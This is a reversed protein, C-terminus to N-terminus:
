ETEDLGFAERLRSRIRQIRLRVAGPKLAKGGHDRLWDCIQQTTYDEFFKLYGIVQDTADPGSLILDAIRTMMENAVAEDVPGPAKTAPEPLADGRVERDPSSALKRERRAVDILKRKVITVLLVKFEGSRVCKKKKALESLASKLGMNAVESPDVRTQLPRSMRKRAVKRALNYFHRYIEDAASEDGAAYAQLLDSMPRPM